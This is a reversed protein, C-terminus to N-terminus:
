KSTIDEIPTSSLYYLLNFIIFKHVIQSIYSFVFFLYMFSLSPFKYINTGKSSLNILNLNKTSCSRLGGIIQDVFNFM